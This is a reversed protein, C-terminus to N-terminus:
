SNFLSRKMAIALFSYPLILCRNLKSASSPEDMILRESAFSGALEIESGAIRTICVVIEAIRVVQVYLAL